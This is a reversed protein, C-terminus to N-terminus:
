RCGAVASTFVWLMGKWSLRLFHQALPTIDELRELAKDLANGAWEHDHRPEFTTIILAPTEATDELCQTLLTFREVREGITLSVQDGDMGPLMNKRNGLHDLIIQYAANGYILKGQRDTVCMPPASDLLRSQLGDPLSSPDSSDAHWQPTTDLKSPM